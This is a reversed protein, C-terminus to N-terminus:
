KVSKKIKGQNSPGKCYLIQIETALLLCLLLPFQRSREAFNEVPEEITEIYMTHILTHQLYCAKCTGLHGDNPPLHGLENAFKDFKEKTKENEVAKDLLEQAFYKANAIRAFEISFDKDDLVSTIVSRVLESSM